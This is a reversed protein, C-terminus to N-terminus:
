AVRHAPEDGRLVALCDQLALWGMANTAGDTHSGVHPTAILQPLSLLPHDAPPPEQSFTDLAAGSLHGSQLAEFLAGEDILEGRATNILYAGPKMAALFAADVMGQTESLAPLHLSVIDSQTLLTEQDTFHVGHSAAFLHDQVVDTAVVRCDFGALRRAVEKGIAGLGILGITKGALTTGHARPWEGQRTLAAANLIPRVLNLMLGIALEAVSKSNAGPTICVAIGQRKAAALDVNSAGVGYRAIVRLHSAVVIAKEDIIDLGAIYGDVDPLLQQLQSSSLPKGTTNYTVRGVLAELERKLRPDNRGYSTPTVLVHCQDLAKM